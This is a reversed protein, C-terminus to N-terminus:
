NDWKALFDEYRKGKAEFRLLRERDGRYRISVLLHEAPRLGGLREAWEVVCVGSGYLYSELGLDLMEEIRSLRYLDVHYMPLRGRYEKIVVFSPSSTYEKVGLGRAIGQALCTKGAGLEGALLYVDGPMASRGLM